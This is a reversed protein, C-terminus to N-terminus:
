SALRDPSQQLTLSGDRIDTESYAVVLEAFLQLM